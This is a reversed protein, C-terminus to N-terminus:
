NLNNPGFAFPLLYSIGTIKRIKGPCAMLIVIPQQSLVEVEKLDQRCQGCPSLPEVTSNSGGVIAIKSVQNKLGAASLTDLAVREACSGKYNATEQNNGKFIKGSKTLVAAGVKFNSYPAYANERAKWATDLLNREDEPLDSTSVIEQYDITMQYQTMTEDRPNFFLVTCLAMLKQADTM